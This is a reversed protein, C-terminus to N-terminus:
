MVFKMLDHKQRLPAVKEKVFAADVIFELEQPGSNEQNEPESLSGTRRLERVRGPGTYSIEQTVHAMVTHLRRAGINQLSQNLDFSTDAIARIGDDTFRCRIGETQLLATQQTVLNYQTVTLIDYFDQKSLAGLIYIYIYIHVGIVMVYM